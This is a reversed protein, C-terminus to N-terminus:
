DLPCVIGMSLEFENSRAVLISSANEAQSAPTGRQKRALFGSEFTAISKATLM